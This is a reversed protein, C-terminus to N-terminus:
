RMGAGSGDLSARLRAMRAAFGARDGRELLDAGLLDSGLGVALAGAALYSGANDLSVGGTPVLAIRPLVQRLSKLFGPGGLSGAPFIKVAAAGGTAQALVETPTAAGGILPVPLGAGALGPVGMPTVLFAAGATVAAQADAPSLVTGVGVCFAPEAALTAVAELADPCTLTIEVLSLGEEGCWRAAQEALGPIGVRVVPIARQAALRRLFREHSM